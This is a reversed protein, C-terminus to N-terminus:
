CAGTGYLGFDGLSSGVTKRLHSKWRGKKLTKLASLLPFEVSAVAQIKEGKVFPTWITNKGTRVWLFSTSGYRCDLFIDLTTYIHIKFFMWWPILQIVRIWISSIYTEHNRILKLHVLLCQSNSFWLLLLCNVRMKDCDNFLKTFIGESSPAVDMDDSVGEQDDEVLTQLAQALLPMCYNSTWISVKYLIYEFISYLTYKESLTSM